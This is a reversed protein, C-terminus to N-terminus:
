RILQKRKINTLNLNWEMFVEEMKDKDDIVYVKFGLGELKDHMIRQIKRPKEDKKKFEVFFMRGSPLLILRDPIGVFGNLKICLGGNSEIKTKFYKEITKEIMYVRGANLM